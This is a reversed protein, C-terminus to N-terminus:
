LRRKQKQIPKDEETTKNKQVCVFSTCSMCTQATSYWWASPVATRAGLGRLCMAAVYVTAFTSTYATHAASSTAMAHVCPVTRTSTCMASTTKATVTLM